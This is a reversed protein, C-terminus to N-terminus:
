VFMFENSYLIVPLVNKIKSAPDFSYKVTYICLAFFSTRLKNKRLMKNTYAVNRSVTSLNLLGLIKELDMILNHLREVVKKKPLNKKENFM